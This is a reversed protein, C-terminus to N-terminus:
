REEKGAWLVTVIKGSENGVVVCLLEDVYCRGDRMPYTMLPESVAREVRDETLGMQKRRQKAHQSWPMAAM